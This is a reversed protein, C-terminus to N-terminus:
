TTYNTTFSTGAVNTKPIGGPAGSTGPKYTSYNTSTGTPDLRSIREGRGFTSTLYNQLIATLAAQEKGEQQEIQFLGQQESLGLSSLQLDRKGMIDQLSAGVEERATTLQKQTAGSTFGTQAARESIAKTAEGLQGTLGGMATSVQSALGQKSLEIDETLFGTRTQRNEQIEDQAKMFQEINFPRFFKGFEQSQTTGLGLMQAIASASQAQGSGSTFYGTYDQLGAQKLLEEFSM